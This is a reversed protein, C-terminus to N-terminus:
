SELSETGNELSGMKSKHDSQGKNRSQETITDQFKGPFWYALAVPLIDISDSFKKELQLDDIEGTIYRAFFQNTLIIVSLLVPYFILQDAFVSRLPSIGRRALLHFWGM